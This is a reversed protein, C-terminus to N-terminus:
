GGNLLLSLYLSEPPELSGKLSKPVGVGGWGDLVWSLTKKTTSPFFFGGLGNMIM